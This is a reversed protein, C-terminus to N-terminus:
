IQIPCFQHYFAIPRNRISSTRALYLTRSTKSQAFIRFPSCVFASRSRKLHQQHEVLQRAQTQDELTIDGPLLVGAALDELLHVKRKATNFAIEKEKKASHIEGGIAEARARVDQVSLKSAKGHDRMSAVRAKRWTSLSSPKDGRAIGKDRRSAIRVRHHRYQIRWVERAVDITELIDAELEPKDMVVTVEVNEQSTSLNRRGRLPWLMDHCSHVHEVGSTTCGSYAGHRILFATLAPRHGGLEKLVQRWVDITSMQPNNALMRHALPLGLLVDRRLEEFRLNFVNAFRQLGDLHASCLDTNPLKLVSFSRLISWSPFEAELSRTVMALLSCMHQLAKDITQTKGAHGGIAMPATQIVASKSRELHNLMIRTYSKPWTLCKREVFLLYLTNVLIGIEGSIDAADYKETDWFRVFGLLATMADTLMAFLVLRLEGVPGSMFELAAAADRAEPEGSRHTAIWIATFLLAPFFLVLMTMPNVVSDFRHDASSVNKIVGSSTDIGNVESKSVAKAFVSKFIDSYKIRKMISNQKLTLVSLVEELAVDSKWPRELTRRAAHTPDKILLKNNPYYAESRRDRPLLAGALDMSCLVMSQEADSDFLEHITKIQAYVDEQFSQVKADHPAHRGFTCFDEVVENYALGIATTADEGASKHKIYDTHGLVGRHPHLAEGNIAFRISLRKARGDSHSAMSSATLIMARDRMCLAEYICYLMKQDKESSCAGAKCREDWVRRFDASPPAATEQFATEIEDENGLLAGVARKHAWTGQHAALRKVHLQRPRRLNVTGYESTSGALHCAKCGVVTSGSADQKAFLWSGLEPRDDSLLCRSRLSERNARWYADM